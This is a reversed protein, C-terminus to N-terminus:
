VIDCYTAEGSLKSLELAESAPVAVEERHVHYSVSYWNTRPSVHIYRKQEKTTNDQRRVKIIIMITMATMLSFIFLIIAVVGGIIAM